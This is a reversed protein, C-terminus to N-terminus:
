ECLNHYDRDYYLLPAGADGSQTAVVQGLYVITNGTELKSIVQCDLWALGGKIFSVGTTLEFTELGIFRDQNDVIRGAFRDSIEQQLERLITVGFVGSNEILHNTRTDRALSVAVIPPDLSISTFSSVTMGHREGNLMSSVITVGTTWQRMAFRLEEPKVPTTPNPITIYKFM